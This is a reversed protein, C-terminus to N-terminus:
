YDTLLDIQRRRYSKGTGPNGLMVVGMREKKMDVAQRAVTEIKAKIDLFKSKVSELGTLGMLRDIAHNSAGEIDKQRAWEMESESRERKSEPNPHMSARQATSPPTSPMAGTSINIAKEPSVRASVGQAQLKAAELDRKKQELACAREKDTEEEIAKERILRIQLDLDGIEAEHRAREKDRREQMEMDAEFQKRRREDEIKCTRCVQPQSKHCKRKQLHGSPCKFEVIEECQM